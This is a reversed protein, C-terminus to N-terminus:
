LSSLYKKKTVTGKNIQNCIMYSKIFNLLFSFLVLVYKCYILKCYILVIFKEKFTSFIQKINIHQILITYQIKIYYM